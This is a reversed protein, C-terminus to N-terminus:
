FEIPLDTLELRLKVAQFFDCDSWQLSVFSAFVQVNWLELVGHTYTEPNLGM